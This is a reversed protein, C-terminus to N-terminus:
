NIIKTHFAFAILVGLVSFLRQFVMIFNCRVPVALQKTADSEIPVVIHLMCIQGDGPINLSLAGLVMMRIEFLWLM